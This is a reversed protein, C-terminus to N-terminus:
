SFLEPVNSDRHLSYDLYPSDGNMGGGVGKGLLGSGNNATSFLDKQCVQTCSVNLPVGDVEVKSITVEYYDTREIPTYYIPGRYLSTSLGNM